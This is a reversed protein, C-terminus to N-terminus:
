GESLVGASGGIGMVGLHARRISSSSSCVGWICSKPMESCVMHRFLSKVISRSMFFTSFGWLYVMIHMIYHKYYIVKLRQKILTREKLLGSCSMGTGGTFERISLKCVFPIFSNSSGGKRSPHRLNLGYSGDKISRERHKEQKIISKLFSKFYM